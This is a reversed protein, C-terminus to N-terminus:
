SGVYGQIIVVFLWGAVAVTVVILVIAVLLLLVVMAIRGVLYRVESFFGQLTPPARHKPQSV